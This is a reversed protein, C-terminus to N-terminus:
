GYLVERWSNNFRDIDFSIAYNYAEKTVIPNQLKEEVLKPLKSFDRCITQKAERLLEGMGGYGTGIVPTKCLLSELAVRNWGEKLNSMLVTVDAVQLLTIYDYFSLDLHASPLDLHAIGSTVMEIDMDKLAEYVRDTGKELQPNGIYVIPKDGLKYKIKFERKERDSRQNYLKIDFPNYIIKINKAGLKEFHEKWYRSVVVLTDIRNLRNLLNKYVFKQYFYLLKSKAIPDYHHFVVINKQNERMFFSADMNRIVIDSNDRKSFTYLNWYYEFLKAFRSQKSKKILPLTKINDLKSIYEGYIGGGYKRNSIVIHTIKKV